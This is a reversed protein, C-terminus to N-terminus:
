CRRRLLTFKSQHDGECITWKAQVEDEGASEVASEDVGEETASEDTLKTDM